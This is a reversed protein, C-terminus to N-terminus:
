LCGCVLCCGFTPAIRCIGINKQLRFAFGLLPQGWGLVVLKMGLRASSEVLLPFYREEHTAVATLHFKPPSHDATTDNLTDVQESEVAPDTEQLGVSEDHQQDM